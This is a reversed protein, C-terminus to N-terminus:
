GSSFRTYEREHKGLLVSAHEDVCLADVGQDAERDLEPLPAPEVPWGITLLAIGFAGVAADTVSIIARWSLRSIM